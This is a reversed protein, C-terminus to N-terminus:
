KLKLLQISTEKIELKKMLLIDRALLHILYFIGERQLKAKSWIKQSSVYGGLRSFRTQSCSRMYNLSKKISTEPYNCNIYKQSFFVGTMQCKM